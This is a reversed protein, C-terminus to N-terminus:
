HSKSPTSTESPRRDCSIGMLFIPLILVGHAVGLTIVLTVMKSFTELIYSNAWFLPAVALLTSIGGQFIPAGYAALTERM